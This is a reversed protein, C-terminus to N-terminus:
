CWPHCCALLLLKVYQSCGLASTNHVMNLSIWANKYTNKPM